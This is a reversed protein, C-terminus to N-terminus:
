GRGALYTEAWEVTSDRVSRMTAPLPADPHTAYWGLLLLRRLMVFDRVMDHDARSLRRVQEYGDVWAGALSTALAHDDFYQVAAGIDFMLWSIGSDDFDLVWTDAHDVMVNLVHLDGHILDVEGGGAVYDGLRGELRQAARRLLALEDQELGPYAGWYGFRAAPGLIQPVLWAFRSFWAPKQWSLTHLHMQATIGGIERYRQATADALDINHGPARELLVALRGGGAVGMRGVREGQLNALPEPIHIDTQQRLSDVWALESAVEVPSHYDRRHVRLVADLSRDPNSVSFMANESVGILEAVVDSYGFNAEIFGPVRDGVEDLDAWSDAHVLPRHRSSAAM